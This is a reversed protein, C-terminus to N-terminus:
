KVLGINDIIKFNEKKTLIEILEEENYRFFNNVCEELDDELKDFEDYYDIPISQDAMATRIKDMDVTTLAYSYDLKREILMEKFTDVLSKEKEFPIIIANENKMKTVYNILEKYIVDLKENVYKYFNNTSFRSNIDEVLLDSTHDGWLTIAFKSFSYSQVADGNKKFLIPYTVNHIKSIEVRFFYSEKGKGLIRDLYDKLNNGLYFDKSNILNKIDEVSIDNLTNIDEKLLMEYIQKDYIKTLLNELELEYNIM